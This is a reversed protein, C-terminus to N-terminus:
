RSGNRATTDLADVLVLIERGALHRRPIHSATWRVSPRTARHADLAGRGPRRPCPLRCPGLITAPTVNLCHTTVHRQDTFWLRSTLRREYDSRRSQGGPDTLHDCRDDEQRPGQRASSIPWPSTTVQADFPFRMDVRFLGGRAPREVGDRLGDGFSFGELGLSVGDAVIPDNTHSRSLFILESSFCTESM